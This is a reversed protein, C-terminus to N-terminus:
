FRTYIYILIYIYIYTYIYEGFLAQKIPNERILPSTFIEQGCAGRRGQFCNNESANLLCRRKKGGKKSCRPPLEVVRAAAVADNKLEINIFRGGFENKWMKELIMLCRWFHGGM